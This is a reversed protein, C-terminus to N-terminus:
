GAVMSQLWSSSGKRLKSGCIPCCADQPSQYNTLVAALVDAGTVEKPRKRAKITAEFRKRREATWKRKKAM